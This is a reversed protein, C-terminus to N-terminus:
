RYERRPWLKTCVFSRIRRKEYFWASQGPEHQFASYTFMKPSVATAFSFFVITDFNVHFINSSSTVGHKRTQKFPLCFFLWEHLYIRFITDSSRVIIRKTPPPCRKRLTCCPYWRDGSQRPQRSLWRCGTDRPWTWWSLVSYCTAPRRSCDATWDDTLHTLLQIGRAAHWRFITESFERAFNTEDSLHLTVRLQTVKWKYRTFQEMRFLSRIMENFM